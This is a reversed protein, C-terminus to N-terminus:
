NNNYVSSYQAHFNSGYYFYSNRVIGNSFKIKIEGNLGDFVCYSLTDEKVYFKVSKGFVYFDSQAFTIMDGPEGNAVVHGEVNLGTGGKFEVVTGPLVTLIIGKPVGLMSTVIYHKDPTLTM